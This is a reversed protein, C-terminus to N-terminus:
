GERCKLLEYLLMVFSSVVNYSAGSVSMPIRCLVVRDSPLKAIEELPIGYDEAGLLVVISDKNCLEKVCESILKKAYTELVLIPSRLPAKSIAEDLSRVALVNANYSFSPRPIIILEAGVHRCINLLDRVNQPNKPHYFVVIIRM